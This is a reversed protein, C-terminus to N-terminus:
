CRYSQPYRSQIRSTIDSPPAQQFFRVEQLVQLTAKLNKYSSHAKIKLNVKKGISRQLATCCINQPQMNSM